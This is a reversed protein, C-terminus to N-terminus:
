SLYRAMVFSFAPAAVLTLAVLSAKPLLERGPGGGLVRDPKWGLLGALAAIDLILMTVPSVAVSGFCGCSLTGAAINAANVLIFSVYCLSLLNWVSTRMSFLMGIAGFAVECQGFVLLM